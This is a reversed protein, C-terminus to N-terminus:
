VSARREGRRIAKYLGDRTAGIAEAAEAVTFQGSGILGQAKAIKDPTITPRRGGTRGQRKAAALGANTREVILDREFQAVAALMHFVLRGGATTTDIGETLSRFGVGREELEAVLGALHQVSRGLRDLKWVVLTDGAMLQPWLRDLEPRRELKGSVYDTFLYGSHVGAATLADRQLSADQDTTSVRAYGFLRGTM